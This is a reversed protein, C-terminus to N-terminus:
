ILVARLEIYVLRKVLLHHNPEDRINPFSSDFIWFKETRTIDKQKILDIKPSKRNM